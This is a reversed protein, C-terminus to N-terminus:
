ILELIQPIQTIDFKDETFHGANEILVFKANLRKAMEQTQFMSFYPDNDSTICTIDSVNSKILQHNIKNSWFKQHEITLDDFDWGSVLILQGLKHKEALRLALVSGLSHGIILTNENIDFNNQLYTLQTELDPLDTDMTPLTPLFVQYGRKELETKLWPYWNSSPNCYWGPLVLANKTM